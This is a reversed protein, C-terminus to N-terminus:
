LICNDEKAVLLYRKIFFIPSRLLVEITSNM